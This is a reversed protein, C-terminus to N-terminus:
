QNSNKGFGGRKGFHDNKYSESLWIWDKVNFANAKALKRKSDPLLLFNEKLIEQIGALLIKSDSSEGFRLFLKQLSSQMNADLIAMQSVPEPGTQDEKDSEIQIVEDSNRISPEPLLAPPDLLPEKRVELIEPNQILPSKKPPADM